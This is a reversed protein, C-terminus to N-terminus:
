QRTVRTLAGFVTLTAAPPMRPTSNPSPELPQLLLWIVVRSLATVQALEAAKPMSVLPPLALQPVGRGSGDPTPNAFSPLPM